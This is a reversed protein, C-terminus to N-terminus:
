GCLSGVMALLSARADPCASVLRDAVAIAGANIFPNRPVGQEWELQVLSNFPNGSPERGIRQWLADGVHRMALALSFLKSISQISFPVDADGAACVRGDGTCLAIGFQAPDVRALAPIYSAVRGAGREAALVAAIDDIIPQFEM